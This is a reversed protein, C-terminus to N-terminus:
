QDRRGRRRVMLAMLAACILSVIATRSPAGASVACGSSSGGSSGSAGTGSGGTSVGAGPGGQGGRGVAGGTGAGGTGSLPSGGSGPAGGTADSGAGGTSSGGSASGGAAGDTSGADLGPGGTGGTATAGVDAAGGDRSTGEGKLAAAVIEAIKALGVDNIHEGEADKVTGSRFYEMHGLFENFLDITPLNYKAAVAKIADAAPSTKFGNDPGDKGFLIPIPTSCYIKPHNPLNVYRKVLDEYDTQFKPFTFAQSATMRSMGWDHRGWSGIVVIDPQFNTSNKFNSGSVYPHTESSPYGQVVSACCDGHNRVDYEAGLLKQLKYPYEQMGAPQQERNESYLNSHTTHEGICSVKIPAARVPRPAGAVLSVLAAAFLVRRVARSPTSKVVVTM